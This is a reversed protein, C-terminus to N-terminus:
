LKLISLARFLLAHLMSAKKRSLLKRISCAYSLEHLFVTSDSSSAAIYDFTAKFFPDGLIKVRDSYGLFCADLAISSNDVVIYDSCEFLSYSSIHNSSSIHEIDYKEKLNDIASNWEPCSPDKSM